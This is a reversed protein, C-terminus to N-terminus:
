VLVDLEAAHLRDEFVIGETDLIRSSVELSVSSETVSGKLPMSSRTAFDWSTFAAAVDASLAALSGDYRLGGEYGESGFRSADTGIDM